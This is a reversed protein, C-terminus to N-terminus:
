DRLLDYARSSATASSCYFRIVIESSIQFLVMRIIPVVDKSTQKDGINTTKVASKPRPGLATINHRYLATHCYHLQLNIYLNCCLMLICVFFKLFV